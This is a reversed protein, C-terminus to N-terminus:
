SKLVKCLKVKQKIGRYLCISLRRHGEWVEFSDNYKNKVIPKDLVVPLEKVSNKDIDDILNQFKLINNIIWTEGRGYLKMLEKYKDLRGYHMYDYYPTTSLLLSKGCVKEWAWFLDPNYQCKIEELPIHCTKIVKLKLTKRYLSFTM